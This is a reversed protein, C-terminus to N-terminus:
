MTDDGDIAGAAIAPEYAFVSVTSQAGTPLPKVPSTANTPRPQGAAPAVASSGYRTEGAPLTANISRPLQATLRFTSRAALAPATPTSMPSTAAPSATENENPPPLVNTGVSTM